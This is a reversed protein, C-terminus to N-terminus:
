GITALIEGKNDGLNYFLDRFERKSVNGYRDNDSFCIRNEKILNDITHVLDEEKCWVVIDELSGIELRYAQTNRDGRYLALRWENQYAYKDMKSFVDYKKGNVTNIDLLIGEAKVTASNGYPKNMEPTYYRIPGAIYKFGAGSVASDVRDVFKDKDLIVAVYSGFDSMASNLAYSIRNGVHPIYCYGLELSYFSLVNCYKCGVARCYAKHLMHEQIISDIEIDVPGVSGEYLDNQGPTYKTSVNDLSFGKRANELVYENWFYYLSNMYLSGNLFDDRYEKKSIFKLLVNM